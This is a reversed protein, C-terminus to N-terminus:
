LGLVSNYNSFTPRKPVTIVVTEFLEQVLTKLPCINLLKFGGLEDGLANWKKQLLIEISKVISDRSNRDLVAAIIGVTQSNHLKVMM